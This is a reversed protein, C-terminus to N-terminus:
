VDAVNGPTNDHPDGIKISRKIEMLYYSLRYLSYCHWFNVNEETTLYSKNFLHGLGVIMEYRGVASSLNQM